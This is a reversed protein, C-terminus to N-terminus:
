TFLKEALHAYKQSMTESEDKNEVDAYGYTKEFVKKDQTIVSVRVAATAAQNEDVYKDLENEFETITRGSPLNCEESM